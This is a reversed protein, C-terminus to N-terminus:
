KVKKLYPNKTKAAKSSDRTSKALIAGATKLSFGEKKSISKEVSQFGPHSKAM